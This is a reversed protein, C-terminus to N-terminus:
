RRLAEATERFLREMERETRIWAREQELLHASAHVAALLEERSLTEVPRGRYTLVRAPDPM